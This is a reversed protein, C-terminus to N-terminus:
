ITQNHTFYRAYIYKVNFRTNAVFEPFSTPKTGYGAIRQKIEVSGPM